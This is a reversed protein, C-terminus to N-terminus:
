GILFDLAKSLVLLIAIGAYLKNTFRTELTAIATKLDARLEAIDSKTTARLDAIDTKTAVNENLMSGFTTVFAEALREDAGADQLRKVAAHTDFALSSMGMMIGAAGHGRRDQNEFGGEFGTAWVLRRGLM